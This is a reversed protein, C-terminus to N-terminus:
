DSSGLGWSVSILSVRRSRLAERAQHQEKKMDKCLEESCLYSWATVPLWVKNFVEPYYFPIIFGIFSFKLRAVLHSEQIDCATRM